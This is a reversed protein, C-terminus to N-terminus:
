EYNLFKIKKKKFNTYTKVELAYIPKKGKLQYGLTTLLGRSSTVISNGTNFLM